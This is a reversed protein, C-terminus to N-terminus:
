KGSGRLVTLITYIMIKFDVFLSMNEIYLIDYKLREIMQEVNEAYGYKVQGWSTIGPRVKHLHTYHPAKEIIQRIFFQREPRPGVISMENTLVNFFQPLEDLRTKRLFRGVPTIRPDDKSSLAPRGEKEADEYMTRFKYINFPKGHLGIREHSYILAGKSSLKVGLALVLYLPSFITMVMISVAVDIVRKLIQQWGPMIEHRIEILPAGFISSMKVQGALIDYMDPIIKVAVNEGQLQNVIKDIENHESSEIALIVEEIQKEKIVNQINKASGLHPLHGSLLHDLDGNLHLFGEFKFGSSKRMGDLEKYLNMANENSGVVVTNFGIKRTHIKHATITSLIFRLLFTFIFHLAFLTSFSRYYSKYSAIEDDLLLAFFIITVGVLSTLITQGLEKLRSKRYPKRYFGTLAYFALWSLPVVALGIFFYQNFELEVEHGFKQPELYLKRFIYFLCWAISSASLDAIIYKLAQLKRNM